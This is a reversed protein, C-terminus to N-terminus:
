FLTLVANYRCKFATKYDKGLHGGAAQKRALGFAPSAHFFFGCPNVLQPVAPLPRYYFYKLFYHCFCKASLYFRGVKAGAISLPAAVAHRVPRRVPRPQPQFIWAFAGSGPFRVFFVEPFIQFIFSFTRVKAGAVRCLAFTFNKSLNVYVVLLVLILSSM